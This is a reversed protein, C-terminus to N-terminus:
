PMPKAIASGPLQLQVTGDRARESRLSRAVEGRESSAERDDGSIAAVFAGHEVGAEHVILM